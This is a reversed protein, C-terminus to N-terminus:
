DPIDIVIVEPEDALLYGVPFFQVAQGWSFQEARVTGCFPQRAEQSVFGWRGQM